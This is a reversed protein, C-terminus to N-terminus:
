SKKEQVKQIFNLLKQNFAEINEVHLIHGCDEFISVESQTNHQLNRAAQAHEPPFVPSLGGAFFLHPVTERTLNQRWDQTIVNQLLAQYKQFNFPLMGKGLVRKVQDTLQRHTLKTRPFEKIFDSLESLTKGTQGDLWDPAKMFTPAQDETVIAMLKGDTFLEEYAMITAAGMSHGVLIPQDLQLASMLEELDTALRHLTMGYDVEQSQGHSRHDYTIVRYGAAVFYDVQFAWTVESASYGNIFVIAQNETAGYSHYNIQVGDNTTYFPM